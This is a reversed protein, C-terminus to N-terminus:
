ADAALGSEITGNIFGSWGNAFDLWRPAFALGEHRCNTVPASCSNFSLSASPAVSV